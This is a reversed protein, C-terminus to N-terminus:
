SERLRQVTARAESRSERFTFDSQEIRQVGLWILWAGVAIEIAGTILAGAWTKGIIVDGILVTLLVTVGVLALAGLGLGLPNRRAGRAAVHANEGLELKALRVEDSALRKTDDALRGILEPVSAPRASSITQTAM